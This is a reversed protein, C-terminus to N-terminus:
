IDKNKKLNKSMALMEEAYIKTTDTLDVGGLLRSLEEIRGEYSLNNVDTITKGDKVKKNIAFHTDALAAIQPLHSICIVQRKKSINNIKEGVVQATRGSIGTDIEDFILCPIDDYDALITKFALMIRSIEGGSAIKSLPKLDEGPNTSILFEVKDYGEETFYDLEKFNVKFIVKNMNLQDLEKSIAQELKKSIAKRKESLKQCNGELTKEIKKIEEKIKKIEEESNLLTNLRESINKEYQFIDEITNGYKKKLNNITDIRDEVFDLREDDYDIGELYQTLNRPVEQLEYSINELLDSINKLEEDYAVVNKILEISENLGDLVSLRNYDSSDLIDVVQGVTSFIEKANSLKNFENKIKKEEEISLNASNIEDIQYQLLDIERGKEMSDISLKKFNKKLNILKIYDKKIIEKLEKFKSDGFIDIIKIHSETNLLSQHEHQGHIDIINETIKNLMSLTVTRGNVRSVSGGTAFIERALVLYNNEEMDIGYESLVKKVKEPQKLYFVGEIIAKKSGTRVLDRSAREGLILGIAEVIISKGSGTEGTLINFGKTFNVNLNELIAFNKINLEVLM